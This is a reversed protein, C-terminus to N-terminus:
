QVVGDVNSRPMYTNLKPSDKCRKGLHQRGILVFPAWYHPHDFKSKVDLMAQRLNNAIDASDPIRGYFSNMLMSTAHDNVEWLSAIMSPVRWQSFARLFGQVENGRAETKGTSCASLTVLEANIRLNLMDAPTLVDSGLNLLSGNPNDSRFIGHSAIHVFAATELLGRIEELSKNVAITCNPLRSAVARVENRIAPLDTTEAGIILSTRNSPSQSARPAALAYSAMSPASSTIYEEVLYGNPGLMAHFPLHHLFRHPIFVVRQDLWPRVPEILIEYLHRLHYELAPRRRSDGPRSLGYRAFRVEEQLESPSIPLDVRELIDSGMVFVCARDDGVLYELVIEGERLKVPVLESSLRTPAEQNLESEILEQVLKQENHKIRNFMSDPDPQDAKFLSLHDSRLSERLKRIKDSVKGSKARSNWPATLARTRGHDAFQLAQRVDTSLWALREFVDHKDELFRGMVQDVSIHTLLFELSESASKYSDFADKLRGQLEFARGKLYSVRFALFAPPKFELSGESRNLFFLAREADNQQICLWANLADALASFPFHKRLRFVEGAREAVEIAEKTSDSAMLAGATELDAMSAWIDNDEAQFLQRGTRFHNVAEIMQGQRTSCRGLLLLARARDSNLGAVRFGNEALNALESAHEPLNLELLIEARDLRCHAIHVEDGIAQFGTEAERMLNLAQAYDGLLFLLYARNYDSQTAFVRLGHDESFKRACRFGELAEDFRYLLMLVVSRNILVGAAAECDDSDELTPAARDYHLLAEELRNLKHYLNGVNVDLRAARIQLNARQFIQRAQEALSLAEVYEGLPVLVGVLSSATRAREVQEDCQDFLTFATRYREVAETISGRIHLLHGQARQSFAQFLPTPSRGAISKMEHVLQEALTPDSRAALVVQEACRRIRQAEHETAM